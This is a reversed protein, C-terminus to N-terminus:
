KNKINEKGILLKLHSFIEADNLNQWHKEFIPNFRNFNGNKEKYVIIRNKDCIAFYSSKMMRAYSLAQNYAKTQEISSSMDYKAEIIMPANQFLVEGTPLFVFDPIAKENRGAKQSLQRSWDKSSYGLKDM